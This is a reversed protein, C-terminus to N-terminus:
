KVELYRFANAALVSSGARWYAFVGRQGTPRFNPGVLNPILEIEMGIRDNILFGNAFDGVAMIKSGTTTTTTVFASAEAKPRGLFPGERFIMQAPEATNGGTFRYTDDWVKPNAIFTSSILFRSPLAQKLLWPDGVVYTAVTNTQVRQTTTLGTLLGAPENTGTGTSFKSADLDDKAFQLLQGLEALATV